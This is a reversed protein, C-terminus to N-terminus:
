IPICSGAGLEPAIVRPAVRAAAENSCVPSPMYALAIKKCVFDLAGDYECDHDPRVRDTLM